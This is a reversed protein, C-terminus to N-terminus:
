ITLISEVPMLFRQTPEISTNETAAGANQNCAILRKDPCGYRISKALVKGLHFGLPSL